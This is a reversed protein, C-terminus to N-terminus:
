QRAQPRYFLIRHRTAQLPPYGSRFHGCGSRRMECKGIFLAIGLSHLGRFYLFMYAHYCLYSTFMDMTYM